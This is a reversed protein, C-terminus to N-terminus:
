KEIQKDSDDSLYWQGQKKMLGKKIYNVDNVWNYHVLVAKPPMEIPTRGQLGPYSGNLFINTDITIHKVNLRNFKRNLFQQTNKFMAIDTETYELLAAVEPINRYVIVGSNIQKCNMLNSCLKTEDCQSFVNYTPNKEMVDMIVPTPDSLLVIDTDIYGISQFGFPRFKDLTLRTVDLKMYVIQTYEPTYYVCFKHVSSNYLRLSSIPVCVCNSLGKMACITENDTCYVLLKFNCNTKEMSKLFNKTYETYGINILTIWLIQNKPFLSYLNDWMYEYSIGKAVKEYPQMKGSLSVSDPSVKGNSRVRDFMFPIYVIDIGYKNVLCEYIFQEPHVPYNISFVYLEDFLNGFRQLNSPTLIFFRDNIRKYFVHFCPVALTTDNVVELLQLTIPTKYVVDPRCILIYDFLEGSNEVMKCAQKKSYMAWIFNDINKYNTNYFDYHTRYKDFDCTQKVTEEDDIMIYDPKLLMHENNDIEQNFENARPNTIPKKIFYTHVFTKYEMNMRRLPDFINEEISQITYKVSRSIGWFVIAVRKVM